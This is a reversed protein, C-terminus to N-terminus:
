RSRPRGPERAGTFCMHLNPRSASLGFRQRARDVLLLSCIEEIRKKVPALGILERDLTAFLDDIGAERREDALSVTADPAVPESRRRNSGTRGPKPPGAASAARSAASPWTRATAPAAPPRAAAAPRGAASQAVTPKPRRAGSMRWRIPRPIMPAWEQRLGPDMVPSVRVSDPFIGRSTLSSLSTQRWGDWVAVAGAAFAIITAAAVAFLLPSLSLWALLLAGVVALLLIGLPPFRSRAFSM